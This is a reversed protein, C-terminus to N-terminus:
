KVSRSRKDEALSVLDIVHKGNDSGSKSQNSVLGVTGGFGEGFEHILKSVDQNHTAKYYTDAMQHIAQYFYLNMDDVTTDKAWLDIAAITKRETDWLSLQMAQCQTPGSAQAESAEWYIETPINDEDLDVTLRIEATRSM